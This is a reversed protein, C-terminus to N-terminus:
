PCAAGTQAWAAILQGFVDQSGPAPERGAGPNWGWGVLSDEAMHEVIGDITRGGNRATDKIQACIEGLTRGEWAMELPALRWHPHGPISRLTESQAVVEVNAPGHCTGCRMGPLGIDADGRSVPPEHVRMAMGQLPSDGAAHCNVCRPHLIVKGAEEFLAKSSEASDTIAAFDAAPRLPQASGDSASSAFVASAAGGAALLAAFISIPVRM